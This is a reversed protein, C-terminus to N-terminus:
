IDYSVKLAIIFPRASIHVCIMSPTFTTIFQHPPFRQTTVTLQNLKCQTKCRTKYTMFWMNVNIICYSLVPIHKNLSM